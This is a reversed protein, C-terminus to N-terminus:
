LKWVVQEHPERLVCGEVPGHKDWYGEPLKPPEAGAPLWTQYPPLQVGLPMASCYQRNGPRALYQQHYPEAFFFPPAPFRLETQVKAGVAKEYAAIAAKAVALDAETTVYLATRYQTGRDNGQGNRQTPDHNQLYMRCVDAFSLKSRDWFVQVAETHGTRGTCVEEYTPNAREGGAYGVATTYVGPMRWMSKEAGWFCGTAVVARGLRAGTGPAVWGSADDGETLLLPTGLVFHKVKSFDAIPTSRESSMDVTNGM